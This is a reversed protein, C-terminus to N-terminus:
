CFSQVFFDAIVYDPGAALKKRPHLRANKENIRFILAVKEEFADPPLVMRANEGVELADILIAETMIGGADALVASPQRSITEIGVAGRTPDSRVYRRVVGLLWNDGGEPLVAVLAGIRIWDNGSAEAGLGGMSVDEVRWTELVDAGRARGSLRRHIADMGNAVSLQSSIRRRATGRTPPKLSWCMEFHRLVPIVANVDYQAGLNIGPPV